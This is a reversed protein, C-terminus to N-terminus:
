KESDMQARLAAFPTTMSEDVIAAETEAEIEVCEDIDEHMASLPLAMVLAEEVIDIPSVAEESFEWVEYGDCDAVEDAPGSLLLRLTTSLPLEFPQLCRQCVAMIGAELSIDLAVVEKQADLFGFKLTGTVPFERWKAPMKAADLASLDAEMLKVLQNFHGIKESIEIVQHAAAWERPLSRDRLPDGM